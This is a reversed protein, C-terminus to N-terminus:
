DFRLARWLGDVREVYLVAQGGRVSPRLKGGTDVQGDAVVQGEVTWVASIGAGLLDAVPLVGTLDRVRGIAIFRGDEGSSALGVGALAGIVGGCTGGLGRLVLGHRAALAMAASQTLVERQARQGFDVVAHPVGGGVCLGPDSGPQFHARMLREVRDALGPLDEKDGELHLVNASNKATYPIRPDRLLQHRSVGYTVVHDARLEDMVLRALRGTGVTSDITDTDDLAVYLRM